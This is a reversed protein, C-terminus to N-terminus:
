PWDCCRNGTGGEELFRFRHSRNGLPEWLEFLVVVLWGLFAVGHGCWGAVGDGDAVGEGVRADLASGCDVDYVALRLWV